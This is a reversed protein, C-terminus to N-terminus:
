EKVYARLAKILEERPLTEDVGFGRALKKLANTHMDVLLKTNSGEEPADGLKKDDAADDASPTSLSQLARKEGDEAAREGSIFDEVAQFRAVDAMANWEEVSMEAKILVQDIVSALAVQPADVRVQVQAPHATLTPTAPAAPASAPAPTLSTTQPAPPAAPPSNVEGTYETFVKPIQELLTRQHNEDLVEAVQAAQPTKDVPAFHYTNRGLTVFSGDPDGVKAAFRKLTHEIRM